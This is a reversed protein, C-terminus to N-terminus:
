VTLVYCPSQKFLWFLHALVRCVSARAVSFTKLLLVYENGMSTGPNPSPFCSDRGLRLPALQPPVTLYLDPPCPSCHIYHGLSSFLTKLTLSNSHHTELLISFTFSSSYIGTTAYWSNFIDTNTKRSKLYGSMSVANRAAVFLILMIVGSITPNFFVKCKSPNMKYLWTKLAYTLHMIKQLTGDEPAQLKPTPTPPHNELTSDDVAHTKEECPGDPLIGVPRAHGVCLASDHM